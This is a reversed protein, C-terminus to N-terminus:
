QKEPINLINDIDKEIENIVREVMQVTEAARLRWESMPISEQYDDAGQIQFELYSAYALSTNAIKVLNKPAESYFQMYMSAWGNGNDLPIDSAMLWAQVAWYVATSLENPTWHATQDSELWRRGKNLDSKASDIWYYPGFEGPRSKIKYRECSM